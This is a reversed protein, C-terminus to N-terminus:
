RFANMLDWMPLFLAMALLLVSAGLVVTVVPEIMSTLNDVTESVEQYYYDSVNELMEDLSGSKEGISIMTAILKTFYPSQRLASAIDGGRMVFTKIKKAEEQYVLNDLTESIIEFSQIISIGTHNMTYLLKAFRAINTNQVLNGM